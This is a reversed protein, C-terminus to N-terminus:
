DSAPRDAPPLSGLRRSLWAVLADNAPLFKWRGLEDAGAWALQQGLLPRPEDAQAPACLFFELEIRVARQVDSWSRCEISEIVAVRLGVEEACERRAADAASEGAEIGGGPFEWYGQWPGAATRTQVLVRGARLVVAVAVRRIDAGDDSM